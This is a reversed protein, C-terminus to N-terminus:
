GHQLIRHVAVDLCHSLGFLPTNLSSTTSCVDILIDRALSTDFGQNVMAFFGLFAGLPPAQCSAHAVLPNWCEPESRDSFETLTHHKGRRCGSWIRYSGPGTSPKYSDTMRGAIRLSVSQAPMRPNWRRYRASRHSSPCTLARRSRIGTTVNEISGTLYAPIKTDV